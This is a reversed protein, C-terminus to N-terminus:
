EETKMDMVNKGCVPCFKSNANLLANCEPCAPGPASHSAEVTKGCVPCFKSTPKLAGGCSCKLSDGGAARASAAAAASEAAQFASMKEDVMDKLIAIRDCLRGTEEHDPTLNKNRAEFVMEGLKKLLDDIESVLPKITGRLEATTTLSKYKSSVGEISRTLADRADDLFGAM